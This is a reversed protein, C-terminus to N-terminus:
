SLKLWSNWLELNVHPQLGRVPYGALSLGCKRLIPLVGKPSPEFCNLITWFQQSCVFVIRTGQTEQRMSINHHFMIPHFCVGIREILLAVFWGVQGASLGGFFFGQHGRVECGGLCATLCCSSCGPKPYGMPHSTQPQNPLKSGSKKSIRNTQNPFSIFHGFRPKLHIRVQSVERQRLHWRWIAHKMNWRKRRLSWLQLNYFFFVPFVREPTIGRIIECWKETVAM